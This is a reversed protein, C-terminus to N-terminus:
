PQRHVPPPTVVHAIIRVADDIRSASCIPEGWSWWWMLREEEPAPMCRVTESLRAHGGPLSVRVRTAAVVTAELGAKECEEALRRTLTHVDDDHTASTM